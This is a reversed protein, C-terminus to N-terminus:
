GPTGARFMAMGALSSRVEQSCRPGTAQNSLWISASAITTPAPSAPSVAVASSARAPRRTSSSSWSGSDFRPPWAKQDNPPRNRTPLGSCRRIPMLSGVLQGPLVPHAAREEVASGVVRRALVVPRVAPRLGVDGEGGPLLPGPQVAHPHPPERQDAPGLPAAVQGVPVAIRHGAEVDGPAGARGHHGRELPLDPLRRIRAQDPQPEPVPHVPEGDGAPRHVAHAPAIRSGLRAARPVRLERTWAPSNSNCAGATITVEPPMPPLRLRTRAFQGSRSPGAGSRIIQPTGSCTSPRISAM